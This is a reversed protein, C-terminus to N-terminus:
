RGISYDFTMTAVFPANLGASTIPRLVSVSILSRAAVNWRFGAVVAARTTPELTGTLRTTHVGPLDPHPETIEILRGGSEIRRGIFEGVLTLRPTAAVTLAAGYEAANSAGGMAYGGEAHLAIRGREWSATARPTVVTEGGGLLNATTGTPFRIDTALSVGSAGVRAVNYKARVVLDGTGFASGSATAQILPTGRYTDVREGAFSVNVFPLAAIVDFRDTVGFHGSVTLVRTEMELTLTETDFPGSEGDLQTSTAVLTGDLLSRGDIRNFRQQSYSLGFSTQRRGGTLSRTMFFPGFSDTSRVSVGLEPDLRYAFGSAPSNLPLTSLEAVLFGVIADRMAAAAQADREFDGTPISRNVLLFSLADTLSQQAIAARPCLAVFIAAFTAAGVRARMM